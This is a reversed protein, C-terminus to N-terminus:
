VSQCFAAHAICLVDYMAPLLAPLGQLFRRSVPRGLGVEALVGQYRAYPSVVCSFAHGDFVRCFLGRASDFSTASGFLPLALCSRSHHTSRSFIFRSSVFFFDPLALESLLAYSRLECPQALSFEM